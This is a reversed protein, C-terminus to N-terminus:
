SGQPRTRGGRFRGNYRHKRRNSRRGARGAATYRRQPLFLPAGRDSAQVKLSLAGIGSALPLLVRLTVRRKRADAQWAPFTAAVLDDPSLIGDEEAAAAAVGLFSKTGSYLPHPQASDYGPGYEELVLAGWREVLLAHLGRRRPYELAAAIAM